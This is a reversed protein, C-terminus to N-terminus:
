VVTTTTTTTTITNRGIVKTLQEIQKSITSLLKVKQSQGIQQSNARM